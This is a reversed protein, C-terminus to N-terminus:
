LKILNEASWWLALLGLALALWAWGVTSWTADNKTCALSQLKGTWLNAVFYGVLLLGSLGLLVLKPLSFAGVYGGNKGPNLFACIAIPIWFFVLAFSLKYQRM